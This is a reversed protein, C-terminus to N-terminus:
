SDEPGLTPTRRSDRVIIVDDFLWRVPEGRRDQARRDVAATARQRRRRDGVRRDPLVVLNREKAFVRCFFYFSPSSGSRIIM